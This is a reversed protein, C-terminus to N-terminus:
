ADAAAASDNGTVAPCCVCVIVKVSGSSNTCFPTDAPSGTVKDADAGSEPSATDNVEVVGCTHVTDPDVTRVRAASWPGHV